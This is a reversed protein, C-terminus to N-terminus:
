LLFCSGKGYKRGTLDANVLGLQLKILHSNVSFVDSCSVDEDPFKSPDIVHTPQCFVQNAGRKYHFTESNMTPDAPHYRCLSEGNIWM